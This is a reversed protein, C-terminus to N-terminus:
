KKAMELIDNMVRKSFKDRTLNPFDRLFNKSDYPCMPGESHFAGCALQAVNQAVAEECMTEFQEGPIARMRMKIAFNRNLQDLEAQSITGEGNDPIGPIIRSGMRRLPGFGISPVVKMESGVPLSLGWYRSKEALRKTDNLEERWGVPVGDRERRASVSFGAIGGRGDGLLRVDPTQDTCSGVRDIIPQAIASGKVEEVSNFQDKGPMRVEVTPM